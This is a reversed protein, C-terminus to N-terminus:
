VQGIGTIVGPRRTGRFSRRHPAVQQGPQRESRRQQEEQERGREQQQPHRRAVRDRGGEPVPRGIGPHLLEPVAEPEVLRQPPLVAGVDPAGEVAVESPGDGGARRDPRRDLVLERGRQLQCQGRQQHRHRDPDPDAGGRGAVPVRGEVHGAAQEPDHEVGRRDEPEPDQELQQERDMEVPQRGAAPRLGKGFRAVEGPQVRDVGEEGPVQVAQPLRQAVQGQRRHRQAEDDAPHEDPEHPHVHQLRQPGVVDVGGPGPPQRFAADYEAM